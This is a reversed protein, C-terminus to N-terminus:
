FSVYHKKLHLLAKPKVQVQDQTNARVDDFM